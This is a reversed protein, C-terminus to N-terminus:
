AGFVVFILNIIINLFPQCFIMLLIFAVVFLCCTFSACLKPGCLESGLVFPNWSWKLRGVPPPLFPNTNPENRASGAPLANAKDKPWIQLSICVSGMPTIKDTNHDKKSLHVWDSDAPDIDWLGTMNKFSDVQEKMEEEEDEEEEAVTKMSNSGLLPNHESDESGDSDSDSDSDGTADEPVDGFWWWPKKAKAAAQEEVKMKRKEEDEQMKEKSVVFDSHHRHSKESEAQGTSKRGTVKKSGISRRSAGEASEEMMPNTDFFSSARTKPFLHESEEDMPIDDASGGAAAAADDDDDDSSDGGVGDAGAIPAAAPAAADGSHSSSHDSDEPIPVDAKTDIVKAKKIMQGKRARTAAAGSPSEFLKIAIGRKFAKRYYKGLNFVVEGACDSWKLIDRDWLQLYLYPFKMARTSHGLEVDYVLRYNWSAKGKKARWHTDTEKQDCGEPWAKVFLDSMGELWDQPPVDKAKWIVLRVEFTQTPPLAVKDAPFSQAVPPPMIDVWCELTGQQMASAPLRLPRREIPKTKWRVRTDDNEDAGPLIMNEEGYEQWRSDFWRDELDITTRGILDDSGIHDKDMMSIELQSAGPLECDIEVMKYLDVDTMDDVANKRDNYKFKGLKMKVYPDSKAVNGYMDLDMGVLNTARLLYVRVVYAKPKLLQEMMEEDFMPEQDETVMIRILGKFKGVVKKTSHSFMAGAKGEKGRLLEYTEFPCTVLEEELDGDLKRRGISWDPPLDGDDQTWDPDTFAEAAKDKEKGKVKIHRMAGFVGAGDDEEKQRQKLIAQLSPPEPSVIYDDRLLEQKREERMARVEQAAKDFEKAILKKKTTTRYPKLAKPDNLDVLIEAGKGSKKAKKTAEIKLDLEKCAEEYDVDGEVIEEEVEVEVLEFEDDEHAIINGFSDSEHSAAWAALADDENGQLEEALRAKAMQTVEDDSTFIQTAPAIYTDECWPIKSTLDVAGTGVIPKLFGGLRKDRVRITLPTAFISNEPMRVPLVIRELFNPSDPNPVKSPATVSTYTNGLSELSLELYPSTMSRFHYPALNRVGVIVMEIWAQRSAPVLSLHPPIPTPIKDPVSRGNTAILQVCALISGEGDGPEEIFMECRSPLPFESTPTDHDETFSNKIPYQAMGLYKDMLGPKRPRNRDRGFKKLGGLGKIETLKNGLNGAKEGVKGLKLHPMQLGLGERDFVRFNIMPAYEFDNATAISVDSFIVTEYWTPFLTEKVVKTCKQQGMFQVSVFPDSLGNSNAPPINRAQYLHVRVQYNTFRTADALAQKWASKTAKCEAVLGFGIKMLISGPFEGPELCDIAKDEKMYVWEAKNDFGITAYTDKEGGVGRQTIEAAKIRHWCVPRGAESVLYVFIDPLQSRDKPLHMVDSEMEENWRCVGKEHKAESTCLENIGMVVKVKLKQHDGIKTVNGTTLAAMSAFAPLETGSVVLVKLKYEEDEPFSEIPCSKIKRRFPEVDDEAYKLPRDKEMRFQVLMRGKYSPALDPVDNYFKYWNIEVGTLTKIGKKIEGGLKKLNNLASDQKLEHSGYLNYWQVELTNHHARQMLKLDGTIQGVMESGKEDHDWCSLKVKSCMSPVAVPYWLEYNFVPQMARRSDAKITKVKTKIAQGGAFSLACYADTGAASVLAVKGDM